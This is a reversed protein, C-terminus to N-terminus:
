HRRANTGNPFFGFNFVKGICIASLFEFSRDAM